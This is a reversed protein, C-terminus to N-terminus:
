WNDDETLPVKFFALFLLRQFIVETSCEHGTALKHTKLVCSTALFAHQVWSPKERSYFTIQSPQLSCIQNTGLALGENPIIILFVKLHM